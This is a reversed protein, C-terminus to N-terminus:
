RVRRVLAYEEPERLGLDAIAQPYLLGVLQELGDVLRHSPRCFLGESLILMNRKRFATTRQWPEPRNIIKSVPVKHQPIGTWVALFWDPDRKAVLTGDDQVSDHQLDSFINRAGALESLETLWNRQGPSFVPNPWWEWYLKVRNEPTVHTSTWDAVADVRQRLADIVQNAVHTPLVDEPVREALTQLDTYIDEFSHPSLVVQPLGAAAVANVVNEMGPVSLSSIVLHPSLKAVAEVDIHLDPGLRPLDRVVDSPYDSYNDVAVLHRSLGLACALETNSPCLSVIRYDRSKDRWGNGEAPETMQLLPAATKKPANTTEPANSEEQAKAAEPANTEERTNRM